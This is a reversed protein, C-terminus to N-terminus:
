PTDKNDKPTPNILKWHSRPIRCPKTGDAYEYMLDLKQTSNYGIDLTHGLEHATKQVQGNTAQDELFGAGTAAFGEVSIPNIEHVYFMWKENAAPVKPIAFMYNTIADEEPGQPLGQGPYNLRGNNDLDYHIQLNPAPAPNVNFFVNAQKGYASNLYQLLTGPDPINTPALGSNQETVGFLSVIWSQKPKVSVRLTAKVSNPHNSDVATIDVVGVKSGTLTLVTTKDTPRDPSVAVTSSDASMLLVNQWGRKAKLVVTNSGPASNDLLPVMLWRPSLNKTDDLGTCHASLAGASNPDPQFKVGKPEAHQKQQNGQSVPWTSDALEMDSGFIPAFGGDSLSAFWTGLTWYNANISNVPGADTGGSGPFLPSIIGNPDTVNLHGSGDKFIVGGAAPVAILQPSGSPLSVTWNITNSPCFATGSHFVKHSSCGL